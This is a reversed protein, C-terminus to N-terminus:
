NLKNCKYPHLRHMIAPENAYDIFIVFWFRNWPPASSQPLQTTKVVLWPPVLLVVIPYIMDKWIVITSSSGPNFGPNLGAIVWHGRLIDWLTEWECCTDYSSRAWIFPNIHPPSLGLCKLGAALDSILYAWRVRWIKMAFRGSQQQNKVSNLGFEVKLLPIGGIWARNQWCLHHSLVLTVTVSGGIVTSMRKRWFIFGHGRNRRWQKGFSVLNSAIGCTSVWFYWITPDATLHTYIHITKYNHIYLM